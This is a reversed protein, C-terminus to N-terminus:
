TRPICLICYLCIFLDFIQIAIFYIGLLLWDMCFLKTVTPLSIDNKWSMPNLLPLLPVRPLPQLFCDNKLQSKCCTYGMFVFSFISIFLLTEGFMLHLLSVCPYLALFANSYVSAHSPNLQSWPVIKWPEKQALKSLFVKRLGLYNLNKPYEKRSQAGNGWTM